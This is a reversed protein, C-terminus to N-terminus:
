AMKDAMNYIVPVKAISGNIATIICFISICVWATGALWRMMLMFGHLFPVLGILTFPVYVVVWAIGLWISQWAHLRVTRNGTKSMVLVIVASVISLVYAFWSADKDSMGTNTPM